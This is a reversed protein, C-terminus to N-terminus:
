LSRVLIITARRIGRRGETRLGGLEARDSAAGDMVAWCRDERCCFKNVTVLKRTIQEGYFKSMSNNFHSPPCLEPTMPKPKMKLPQTAVSCQPAKAEKRSELM